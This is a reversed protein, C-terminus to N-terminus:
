SDKEPQPFHIFQKKITETFKDFDGEMLKYITNQTQVKIMKDNQDIDIIKSIASTKIDTGDKFKPNNYVTGILYIECKARLPLFSWEKLISEIM